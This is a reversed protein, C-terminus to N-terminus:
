PMKQENLLGERKLQRYKKLEQVLIKGTVLEEKLKQRAGEQEHAELEPFMETLVMAEISDFVTQFNDKIYASFGERENETEFVLVVRELCRKAIWADDSEEDFLYQRLLYLVSNKIYCNYSIAKSYSFDNGVCHWEPKTVHLRGSDLWVTQFSVLRTGRYHVYVEDYDTSKNMMAYSYFMRYKPRTEYEEGYLEPHNSKLSVTYEPHLKHYYDDGSHDWQSKDQVLHCFRELPTLHLGQRKKWLYEVHHIDASKDIPTNTDGIRTYIYNAKVTRKQKYEGNPYDESLYFPTHLTNFVILVDLDHQGYAVKRMEVTPRSDGAFKKSRLFDIIGQQNRRNEDNEIGVINGTKDEVGFIIYCDHDQQSNAMCLIDHLFDAMNHHHERKFDWYDGERKSAILEFIEDEFDM